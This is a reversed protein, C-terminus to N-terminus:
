RVEQELAAFVAPDLMLGSLSRLNAVAAAPTLAAGAAGAVALDDYLSAASLIRAGLPIEEGRRAAPGGKGDFREHQARVIAVVGKLQVLPELLRAALEPDGADGGMEETAPSALALDPERLALKGIDHLRGATRIADVDEGGLGMRVAIRASLDAVRQSHGRLTADKAELTDVLVGLVHISLRALRRTQEELERTRAAVERALWQEMGRREIELERRRLARRLAHELEDLDVPKILYDAAGMKLCSIAATPEGVGTLMIIALDPDAALAKPLLETGTMRPMRIDCLMAAPTQEALRALAEEGDGAQRVEYGAKRLFQALVGRVAPDDEVVLVSTPTGAPTM